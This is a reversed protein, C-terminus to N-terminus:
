RGFGSRATRGLVFAACQTSRRGDHRARKWAAHRQDVLKFYAEHVLATPQLTHDGREGRLQRAAMARLERYVLPVLRKLADPNGRGWEALLGTVDAATTQNDM